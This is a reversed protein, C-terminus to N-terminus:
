GPRRPPASSKRPDPSEQTGARVCSLAWGHVVNNSAIYGGNSYLWSNGEQDTLIGGAQELILGAAAVDWITLDLHWYLHSRGAAVYCIGLAPSGMVTCHTVQSEILNLIMGTQQRLEGTPAWDAGVLARHWAEQGELLQEVVIKEGNLRAPQRPTAEFLEDRCPDYVVGVHINGASRLAISIAFHPVGHAFNVSGGAPDVIWLDPADVPMPADEPGQKALIGAEPYEASLLGVVADQVALSAETTVDRRGKWTLYGPDSLRARAIQGGLRAAQKAVDLGHKIEAAEM